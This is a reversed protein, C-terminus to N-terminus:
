RTSLLFSWDSVSAHTMNHPANKFNREVCLWLRSSQDSSYIVERRRADTLESFRDKMSATKLLISTRVSERLKIAWCRAM